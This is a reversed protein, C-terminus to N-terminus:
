GGGNPQGSGDNDGVAQATPSKIAGKAGEATNAARSPSPSLSSVSSSVAPTLVPDATKTRRPTRDREQNRGRPVTALPGVAQESPQVTASSASASASAAAADQTATSQQETTSLPTRTAQAPTGTRRCRSPKQQFGENDVAEDRCDMQDGQPDHLGDDRPHKGGLQIEKKQM